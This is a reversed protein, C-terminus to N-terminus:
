KDNYNHSYSFCCFCINTSVIDRFSEFGMSVLAHDSFAGNGAPDYYSLLFHPPREFPRPQRLTFSMRFPRYIMNASSMIMGQSERIYTEPDAKLVEQIMKQRDSSKWPPMEKQRHMCEAGKGAAMCKPCAMGAMLLSLLPKGDPRKLMALQSVFNDEGGPTTIAIFATGEVVLAPLIVKKFVSNKGYAAEELVICHATM